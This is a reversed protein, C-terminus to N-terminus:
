LWGRLEVLGHGLVSPPPSPSLKLDYEPTNVEAFIPGKVKLFNQPGAPGRGAM